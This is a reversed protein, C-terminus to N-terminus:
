KKVPKKLERIAEEILARLRLDLDKNERMKEFAALVRTTNQKMMVLTSVAIAVYAPDKHGLLEMLPDVVTDSTDGIMGLANCAAGVAIPEKDRLMGLLDPIRKKAKGKLAGLATAAQVRTELDPSKLFQALKKLAGDSADGEEMAVLGAFAWITLPRNVKERTNTCLSLESMVRSLLGPSSPRGMAGLGQITELKEQYTKANRLCTLLAETIRHDTHGDKGTEVGTRWLLAICNHRIEYSSKDMTGAIITPVVPGCDPIFRALTATAEVRIVAQSEHSPLIHKSVARVIDPVAKEEVAILRLAVLAKARPSVDADELRALLEPVCRAAGNPFGTIALIAVARRSADKNTLEDRWEKLTKGGVTAPDEQADKDKDKNAPPQAQGAQALLMLGLLLAGCAVRM